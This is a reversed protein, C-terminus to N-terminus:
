MYYGGAVIAVLLLSLLPTMVDTALYNDVNSQIILQTMQLALVPVIYLFTVVHVTRSATADIDHSAAEEVQRLVSVM